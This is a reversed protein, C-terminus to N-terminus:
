EHSAVAEKMIFDTFGYIKLDRDMFGANGFM